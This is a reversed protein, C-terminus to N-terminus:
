YKKVLKLIEGFWFRHSDKLDWSKKCKRCVMVLPDHDDKDCEAPTSESCSPCHFGFYFGAGSGYHLTRSVSILSQEIDLRINNCVQKANDRQQSKACDTESSIHVELFTSFFSIQVIHHERGVRFSVQDRFMADDILRWQLTCNSFNIVDAILAGFIGKPCYGCRFLVCLPPIHPDPHAVSAPTCGEGLTSGVKSLIPAHSLVCTVLYHSPSQLEEEYIPAIICLHKLLIILKSGSLLEDSRSSLEDIIRCSVIGKREFEESAYADRTEDFTFTHTILSTIKNFIVQPDLIVIDSLEPIQHFYRIVGLRNHLFWLAEKLEEDGHIGCDNAMSHCEEYSIMSKEVLRFSLLLALWPAPVSVKFRSDSAIDEVLHRIKCADRDDDSLNNITLAPEDPSAFRVIGKKYHETGVLAEKLDAQLNKIHEADTQDKHTGVLVVKPQIPELESSSRSIYSCTSAISALSQLISELVTFSSEYTISKRSLSEVYQVRYKQHLSDPLKFVIFFVSPGAIIAPLVEQFEPQGGVDTFYINLSQKLFEEASAWEKSRLAKQFIELPVQYGPIRHSKKGRGFRFRMLSQGAVTPEVAIPQRNTEAVTTSVAESSLGESTPSPSTPPVPSELQELVSSPQSSLIAKLMMAAEQSLTIVRWNMGPQPAMAITFSAKKIIVQLIREAVGTSTTESILHSHPLQRGTIRSLFTSKGVRPPGNLLCLAFNLDVKGKERMIKDCVTLHRMEEEAIRKIFYM